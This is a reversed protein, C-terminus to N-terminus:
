GRPVRVQVEDDLVWEALTGDPGLLLCANSRDLARLSWRDGVKTDTPM